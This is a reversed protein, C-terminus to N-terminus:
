TLLVVAFYLLLWGVALARGFLGVWDIEPQWQRIFALTLWSALVAPAGVVCRVIPFEGIDLSARGMFYRKAHGTLCLLVALVTAISAAGCAVIGPGSIVRGVGARSRRARLALGAWSWTALGMAVGRVGLEDPRNYRDQALRYGALATATAAILVMVDLVNFRSARPNDVQAIRGDTM